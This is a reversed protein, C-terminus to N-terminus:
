GLQRTDDFGIRTPELHLLLHIRLDSMADIGHQLWLADRHHDFGAVLAHRRAADVFRAHAHHRGRHMAFEACTRQRAAFKETDDAVRRCIATASSIPLANTSLIREPWRLAPFLIPILRTEM